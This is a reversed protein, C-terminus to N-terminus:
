FFIWVEPGPLTPWHNLGNAARVSLRPTNRICRHMKCRKLQMYIAISVNREFVTKKGGVLIEVGELFYIRWLFLIWYQVNHSRGIVTASPPGILSCPHTGSLRPKLTTWLPVTDWFLFFFFCGWRHDWFDPSLSLYILLALNDKPLYHIGLWGLRQSDM